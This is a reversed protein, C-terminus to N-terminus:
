LCYFGLLSSFYDNWASKCVCVCVCTRLSPFKCFQLKGEFNSFVERPWDHQEKSIGWKSWLNFHMLFSCLQVNEQSHKFSLLSPFCRIFGRPSLLPLYLAICTPKSELDLKLLSGGQSLCYNAPLTQNSRIAKRIVRPPTPLQLSPAECQVDCLM